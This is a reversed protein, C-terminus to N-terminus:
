TPPASDATQRADLTQATQLARAVLRQLAELGFPKQLCSVNCRDILDETEADLADGTILAMHGEYRSDISCVRKYLDPGRMGPLNVDSVILDYSNGAAQAEAVRDLAAQADPAVVTHHGQEELTAVILDSVQKEDEVLLIRAAEAPETGSTETQPRKDDVIQAGAIPLEVVFAAGQTQTDAAYIRGGYRNVIGFCIALGLGTGEGVDKTTFFPEFLHQKAEESLGPGTDRITVRVMNAIREATLVLERPSDVREMAELANNIIQLFVQQLEQPAAEVYPLHPPLNTTVTIGARRIQYARLELTRRLADGLDAISDQEKRQRAFTLLNQVIDSARLAQAHIKELDRREPSEPDSSQRLLQVYGMIATLPNNLEHAVGSILQGVASLRASQVLHEQTTKLDQLSQQLDSVLRANDIAVAAMTALTSLLQEDAEAFARTSPSDISLTGIRRDGLMIPAVAMSSFRRSTSSQLFRPDNGVDPVNILEGTQLAQGAVGHGLHLGHKGPSDPLVGPQFSLARPRLEQTEPDYLHLVGNSAREITDVALSVILSLLHDLDLTSSLARSVKYLAQSQRLRRNTDTYLRAHDVALGIARGVTACAEASVSRPGEPGDFILTLLGIDQDQNRLPLLVMSDVDPDMRAGRESASATHREFGLEQDDEAKARWRQRLLRAASEGVVGYERVLPAPEEPFQVLCAGGLCGPMEEVLVCLSDRLIDPIQRDASAASLIRDLIHFRTDMLM